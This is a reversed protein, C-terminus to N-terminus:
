NRLNLVSQTAAFHCGRTQLVPIMRLTATATAIAGDTLLSLDLDSALSVHVAM